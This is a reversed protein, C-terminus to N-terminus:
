SAKITRLPVRGIPFHQLRARRPQADHRPGPRAHVVDVQARGLLEPDDHQVRGARVADRRGLHREPEHEGRHPVDGRSM